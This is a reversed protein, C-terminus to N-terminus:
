KNNSVKKLFLFFCTLSIFWCIFPVLRYVFTMIELDEIKAISSISYYMFPNNFNDPGMFSKLDEQSVNWLLMDDWWAGYILLMWSHSLFYTFITYKYIRRWSLDKVMM